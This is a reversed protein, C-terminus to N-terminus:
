SALDRDLRELDVVLAGLGEAEARAADTLGARWMQDLVALERQRDVFHM